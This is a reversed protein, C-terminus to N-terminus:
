FYRKKKEIQNAIGLLVKSANKLKINYSEVIEELKLKEDLLADIDGLTAEHRTNISDIMEKLETIQSQKRTLEQKTKIFAKRETKRERISRSDIEGKYYGYNKIIIFFITVVFLIIGILIGTTEIAM